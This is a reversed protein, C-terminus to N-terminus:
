RDRVISSGGTGPASTGPMAGSSSTSINVTVVEADAANEANTFSVHAAYSQSFDTAAITVETSNEASANPTATVAANDSAATWSLDGDGLNSVTVTASSAMANLSV